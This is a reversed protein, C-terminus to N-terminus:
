RAHRWRWSWSRGYKADEACSTLKRTLLNSLCTAVKQMEALQQAKNRGGMMGQAKQMNKLGGGMKKAM